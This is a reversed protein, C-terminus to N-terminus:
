RRKNIALGIEANYSFSYKDKLEEMTVTGDNNVIAVLYNGPFYKEFPGDQTYPREFHYIAAKVVNKHISRAPSIRFDDNANVTDSSGDLFVVRGQGISRCLVVPVTEIDTFRTRTDDDTLAPLGGACNAAAAQKLMGETGKHRMWLEVWAEPEGDREEYTSELVQRIQTPVEISHDPLNKWVELSRLLAYVSYVNGKPGFAKEIDGGTMWKLKEISYPEDIIYVHPTDAGPRNRREHRWLRGIRQLLMDSPALETILLDADIDVSQEVVQTAVLIRAARNGRSKGLRAMWENEHAERQWFPFRSHLLGVTIGGSSTAERVRTYQNQAEDITNCVWLVCGGKGATEAAKSLAYDKEVFDVKVVKRQEGPVAATIPSLERDDERRGTVLPYSPIDCTQTRLLGARADATLTASLIIVTCGLDELSGILKKIITATYVDYSHIEDLIVVKGALAFHRVFSHKVTLEGLLLQDVTGVGFRALLARKNSSFWDRGARADERWNIEGATIAPNISGSNTNKLWSAAHILRSSATGETIRDLYKNIREHISNSTIQTPLAFYLGGAKGSVMLEYAAALAIETKGMGMPAEVVYVGPGTIAAIAKSQFDYPTVGFIDKFALAPKIHPRSFGLIDLVRRVHDRDQLRPFCVNDSGIWDAVSIVGGLWKLAPSDFSGPDFCPGTDMLSFYQLVNEAHDNRESEWKIGAKADDNLPASRDEPALFQGHHGGIASAIYKARTHSVGKQKLFKQTFVQSVYGHKTARKNGTIFAGNKYAGLLGNQMLWQRCKMQFAPSIKGIDHLAALVGVEKATIGFRDLMGPTLMEVLCEAVCGVNIMHDYVSLAPNGDKDTKAWFTM